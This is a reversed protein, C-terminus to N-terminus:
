YGGPGGPGRNLTLDELLTVASIIHIEIKENSSLFGGGTVKKEPNSSEIRGGLKVRTGVRSGPWSAASAVAGSTSISVSGPSILLPRPGAHVVEGPSFTM